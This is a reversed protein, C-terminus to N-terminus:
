TRRITIRHSVPKNLTYIQEILADMNLNWMQRIEPFRATEYVGMKSNVFGDTKAKERVRKLAEPSDDFLKGIGKFYNFQLWYYERMKGELEARLDNLHMVSQAQMYQPTNGIVALNLGKSLSDASCQAVPKQDILVTYTGKALGQVRIIEQDFERIFPYVALADSQKQPNGWATSNSDIPFPLSGALYAFSLSDKAIALQSIEANESRVTHKKRADIEVNAVPKGALGQAKLILAAMVLHGAKGPHIRDPGTLTYAPDRQQQQKNIAQMPHYLDVYEWKEDQAARQQFAVIQELARSKGPFYNDKNKMTEDYPSSSMIIKRMGNQAAMKRRITDFGLRSKEVRQKATENSDPKLFEFYGSDNMGFTLFMVNPKLPLLDGDFRANMQGVVDGGTGVNFVRIKEEPFHTMYYLWVYSEYYGAHTISNGMFAVRDGSKFPKVQANVVPPCLFICLSFPVILRRLLIKM